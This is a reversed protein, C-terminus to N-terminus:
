KAYAFDRVELGNVDSSVGFGVTLETQHEFAWEMNRLYKNAGGM